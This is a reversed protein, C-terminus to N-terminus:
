SQGYASLSTALHRDLVDAERAPDVAIPTRAIVSAGAPELSDKVVEVLPSDAALTQTPSVNRIQGDISTWSRVFHRVPRKVHRDLSSYYHVKPCVVAVALCDGQSDTFLLTIAEVEM